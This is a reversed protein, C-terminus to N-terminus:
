RRSTRRSIAAREAADIIRVLEDSSAAARYYFVGQEIVSADQESSEHSLAIIEVGPCLEKLVAIELQAAEPREDIGDVVAIRPRERRAADLVRPGPRIDLVHFRSSSLEESLAASLAGSSSIVVIRIVDLSTEQPNTVRKGNLTYLGTADDVKDGSGPKSDM